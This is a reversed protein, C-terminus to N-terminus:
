LDGKKERQNDGNTVRIEEPAEVGSKGRNGRCIGIKKFRIFKWLYKM